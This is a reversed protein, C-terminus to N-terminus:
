VNQEIVNTNKRRRNGKPKHHASKSNQQEVMSIDQNQNHHDDHNNRSQQNSVNPKVPIGHMNFLMKNFRKDLIKASLNGSSARAANPMMSSARSERGTALAIGIGGTSNVTELDPNNLESMENYISNVAANGEKLMSFRRRFQVDLSNKKQLRRSRRNRKAKLRENPDVGNLPPINLIRDESRSRNESDTEILLFILILECFNVFIQIPKVKKAKPCTWIPTMLLHLIIMVMNATGIDSVM